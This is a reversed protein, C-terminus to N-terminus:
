IGKQIKADGCQDHRRVADSVRNVTVSEKGEVSFRRQVEPLEVRIDMLPAKPALSEFLRRRHRIKLSQRLFLSRVQQHRKADLPDLFM